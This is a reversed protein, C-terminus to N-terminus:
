VIQTNTFLRTQFVLKAKRRDKAHGGRSHSGGASGPGLHVCRRFSGDQTFSSCRFSALHSPALARSLASSFGLKNPCTWAALRRTQSNRGPAAASSQRKGWERGRPSTPPPTTVDAGRRAGRGSARFPNERPTRRRSLLLRSSPPPLPSEQRLQRGELVADGPSRLASANRASLVQAAGSGRRAEREPKRKKM